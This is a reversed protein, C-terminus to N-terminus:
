VARVLLCLPYLLFLGFLWYPYMTILSTGQPVFLHGLIAYLFLHLIYFFLPTRGYVALPKLILSGAMALKSFLWLIILNLGTTLLTFAMSPPYKVVNLFDIWTDGARPRINGFGDLLRIAVFAALFSSEWGSVEILGESLM